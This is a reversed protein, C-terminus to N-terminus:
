AKAHVNTGRVKCVGALYSRCRLHLHHRLRRNDATTASVHLIKVANEHRLECMCIVHSAMHEHSACHFRGKRKEIYREISFVLNEIPMDRIPLKKVRIDFVFSIWFNRLRFPVLICSIFKHFATINLSKLLFFFLFFSSYLIKTLTQRNRPSVCSIMLFALRLTEPRSSWISTERARCLNGRFENWISKAHIFFFFVDSYLFGDILEAGFASFFFSIQCFLCSFAIFYVNLWHM